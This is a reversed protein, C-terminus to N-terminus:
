DSFDMLQTVLSTTRLSDGNDTGIVTILNRKSFAAVM